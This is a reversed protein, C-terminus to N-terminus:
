RKSTFLKDCTCREFVTSPAGGWRVARSSLRLYQDLSSNDLFIHHRYREQARWTRAGERRSDTKREERNERAQQLANWVTSMSGSYARGGLATTAHYPVYLLSGTWSYVHFWFWRRWRGSLRFRHWAWEQTDTAKSIQPFSRFCHDPPTHKFSYTVLNLPKRM